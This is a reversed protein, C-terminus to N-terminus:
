ETGEIEAILRKAKSEVSSLDVPMNAQPVDDLSHILEKLVQVMEPAKAFLRANAWAREAETFSDNWYWIRALIAQQAQDVINFYDDCGEQDRHISYPGPTFRTEIKAIQESKSLQIEKDTKQNNM